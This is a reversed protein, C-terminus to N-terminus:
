LAMVLRGGGDVDLVNSDIGEGIYTHIESTTKFANSCRM